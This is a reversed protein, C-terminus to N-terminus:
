DSLAISDADLSGVVMAKYIISIHSEQIEKTTYEKKITDIAKYYRAKGRFYVRFQTSDM